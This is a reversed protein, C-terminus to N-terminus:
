LHGFVLDIWKHLNASVYNSELAHRNKLVFDSPTSAWLPLGVDEVKKQIHNQGLDMGTKNILFDGNGFYFEPIVEKNDPLLQLVNKWSIIIDHFIKDPPGGM